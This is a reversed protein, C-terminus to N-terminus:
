WSCRIPLPRMTVPTSAGCGGRDQDLGFARDCRRFCLKRKGRLGADDHHHPVVIRRGAFEGSAVLAEDTANATIGRM